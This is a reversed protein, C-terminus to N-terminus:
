GILTFIAENGRNFLLDIVSMDKQFGHRQDFVQYYPEAESVIQKKPHILERFDVYETYDTKYKETLNFAGDIDLLQLILTLLELNYDWLFSWKNEYFRVFDDEYFEYFPSSSYASRIARFHINQWNGHPSIRVDWIHKNGSGEIPISLTEVGNAGVIRCRNRYSQKNYNEHAELLRKDARYWAIFYSVPPLYATSFVAGLSTSNKPTTKIIDKDSRM